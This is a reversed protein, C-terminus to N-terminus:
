RADHRGGRKIRAPHEREILVNTRAREYREWLWIGAAAVPGWALLYGPAGSCVLLDLLETM